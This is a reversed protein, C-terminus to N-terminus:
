LYKFIEWKLKFRFLIYRYFMIFYSKVKVKTNDIRKSVLVYIYSIIYMSIYM